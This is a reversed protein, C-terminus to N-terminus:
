CLARGYRSDEGTRLCEIEIHQRELLPTSACLATAFYRKCTTRYVGAGM